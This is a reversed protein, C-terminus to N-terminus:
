PSVAQISESQCVNRKGTFFQQMLFEKEHVVGQMNSIAADLERDCLTLVKAVAMQEEYSPVGVCIARLANKSLNKMSGSTGSAIGLLKAKVAPTLLLYSLWRTDVFKKATAQWLRDPLFTNPPAHEVYACAGVLNPTNMRSILLSDDRLPERLRSIEQQDVVAKRESARFRGGTICSTKLISPCFEGITQDSSNVSVGADLSQFLDGLRMNRWPADFSKLRQEGTMLRHLLVNRQSKYNEILAVNVAIARDWTALIEAIKKQEMVSPVSVPIRAFDAFYLRLRDSTLGHSYAWFLYIMRQSGFLQSAYLSDVKEKPALVVYAPSVLGGQDALGFAGQWMRMMNYAIDGPKVLLHEEPALTTDQKRELDERDVLGDNMTVSLVPLGPSGKERRSKFLDGLRCNGEYAM